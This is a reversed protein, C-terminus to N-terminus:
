IDKDVVKGLLQQESDIVPQEKKFRDVIKILLLRQQQQRESEFRRCAKRHKEKEKSGELAGLLEKTYQALKVIYLLDNISVSQKTTLKQPRYPDISRSISYVFRM